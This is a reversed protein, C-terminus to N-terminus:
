GVAELQKRAENAFEDLSPPLWRWSSFVSGPIAALTKKRARGIRDITRQDLLCRAFRQIDNLMGLLEDDGYGNIPLIELKGGSRVDRSEIWSWRSCPTALGLLDFVAECWPLDWPYFFEVYAPRYGHGDCSLATAVRALPLTKVLLAVGTDLAESVPNGDLVEAPCTPCKAGWVMQRYQEWTKDSCCGPGYSSFGRGHEPLRVIVSAANKDAAAHRLRIAAMRDPHESVEEIELEEILRLVDVDAPHSGTGLWVGDDDLYALFGRRLLAELLLEDGKLASHLLWEHVLTQNNNITVDRGQRQPIFNM